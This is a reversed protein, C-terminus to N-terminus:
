LNATPTQSSTITAAVLAIKEIAKLYEESKEQTTELDAALQEAARRAEGAEIIRQDIEERLAKKDDKAREADKRAKGAAASQDDLLAQQALISLLKM